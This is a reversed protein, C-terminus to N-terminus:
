MGIGQVAHDAVQVQLGLGVCSSNQDAPALFFSPSCTRFEYKQIELAARGAEVRVIRGAVVLTLNVSDSLLVPWKVSLRVDTNLALPRETTFLAGCSSINLIKGVGADDDARYRVPLALPFRLAKRNRGANASDMGSPM